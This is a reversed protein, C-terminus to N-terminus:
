LMITVIEIAFNKEFSNETKGNQVNIKTWKQFGLKSKPNNKYSFNQLQFKSM